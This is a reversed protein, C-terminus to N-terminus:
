TRRLFLYAASSSSLSSSTRFSSLPPVLTRGFNPVFSHSVSLRVASLADPCSPRVFAMVPFPLRFSLHSLSSLYLSQKSFLPIASSTCLFVLPPAILLLLSASCKPRDAPQSSSRRRGQKDAQGGAQRGDRVNVVIPSLGKISLQAEGGEAKLALRGEIRGSGRALDISRREKEEDVGRAGVMSLAYPVGNNRM